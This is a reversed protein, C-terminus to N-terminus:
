LVFKTIGGDVQVATGTIFGANESALFAVADALEEPKGFRGLPIQRLRAKEAEGLPLGQKEADAQLLNQVRETLISGPCVANVTINYSALENALHKSLGIVALRLSNSLLLNNLPQKVSASTIHVIRGWKQKQMYPIVERCLRVASMLTLRFAKEWQEDTLDFFNGPPPGGANTVLVDLREFRETAQSVFRKVDEPKSVDAAVALVEAGTTERIQQATQQLTAENRACTALKMGEQALREAIARGLGKSAAPVIAVRNTLGLDM